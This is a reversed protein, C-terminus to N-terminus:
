KTTPVFAGNQCAGPGETVGKPLLMFISSICMERPFELKAGTTNKWSCATRMVDGKAVRFPAAVPWKNFDPNLQHEPNWTPDDRMVVVEGTGARVLSTTAKTGYEHMHNGAMVVDMDAGLVCDISSSAEQGPAVDIKMNVAAFISAIRVDPDVSAKEMKIDFYAQGAIPTENTNVYHHNLLLAQGKKLRFASSEPNSVRASGLWTGLETHGNTPECSFPTNMPHTMKAKDVGFVTLHHGGAGQDGKVHLINMDEPVADLVFECWTADAGAKIGEVPKSIFRSYGPDVAPLKSFDVGQHSSGAEAHGSAPPQAVSADVVM